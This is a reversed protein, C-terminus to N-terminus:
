EIRAIKGSQNLTFTLPFQGNEAGNTISIIYLHVSGGDNLGSGGVYTQDVFNIGNLKAMTVRRQTDAFAEEDARMEESVAEWMMTVDANKQGELYREIAALRMDHAPAPAVGLATLPVMGSSVAFYSGLVMTIAILAAIPYRLVWRRTLVVRKVIVHLITKFARRVPNRRRPTEAGDM